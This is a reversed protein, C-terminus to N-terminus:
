TQIAYFCYYNRTNATNTANYIPNIVEQLHPYRVRQYKLVLYRLLCM